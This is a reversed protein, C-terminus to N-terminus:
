RATTACPRAIWPLPDGHVTAAPHTERATIIATAWPARTIATSTLGAASSSARSETGLVREGRRGGSSDDFQGATPRVDADVCEPPRAGKGIRTAPNRRRPRCTCTPRSTSPVGTGRHSMAATM